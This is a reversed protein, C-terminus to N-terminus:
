PRVHTHVDRYLAGTSTTQASDCVLSQIAAQVLMSCRLVMNCAEGAFMGAVCTTLMGTPAGAAELGRESARQAQFTM